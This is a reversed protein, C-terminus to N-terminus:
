TTKQLEQHKCLANARNNENMANLSLEFQLIEREQVRYAEVTQIRNANTYEGAAVTGGSPQVGGLPEAEDSTANDDIKEFRDSPVVAHPETVCTVHFAWDETNNWRERLFRDGLDFHM